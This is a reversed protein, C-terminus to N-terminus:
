ILYFVAMTILAAGIGFGVLVCVIMEQFDSPPKEMERMRQCMYCRCEDDIISNDKNM